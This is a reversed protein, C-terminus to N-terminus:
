DRPLLVNLAAAELPYATNSLIVIAKGAQRDLMIISSFGGTSGNHWTIDHGRVHSIFWAMGIQSHEAKGLPKLAEAGPFYGDLLLRAYRAMDVITSRMSGAPAYAGLTWPGEHFGGTSYGTTFDHPLDSVSEPLSTQMMGAPILLRENLLDVYRQNVWKALANGLLAFGRNSYAFQGRSSLPDAKAQALLQANDAFLPDRHRLIEVLMMIRDHWSSPMSALGAHHTVLETLSVDSVPSSGVALIEGLRMDLTIEGREVADALLAATFTKTISGIEYQTDQNSGWFAYRVGTPEILVASVRDRAGTLLPTLQAILQPDGSTISSPSGGGPLTKIASIIIFLSLVIPIVLGKIKGM